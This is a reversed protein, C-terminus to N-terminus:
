RLSVMKEFYISPTGSSQDLTKVGSSSFLKNAIKISPANTEDILAEIRFSEIKTGALRKKLDDIGINAAEVSLKRGQNNQRVAYGISYRVVNDIPAELGFISIAQVEEEVIKVYLYRKWTDSREDPIVLYDGVFMSRDVTYGSNLQDQIGLLADMPNAMEAM